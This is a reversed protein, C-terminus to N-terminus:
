YVRSVFRRTRRQYAAYGPYRDALWAEERRSKLDFYIALVVTVAIAPLSRTLVSWGLGGLILGAYIPHRITAYIGSEVLVAEDHPRPMPTLSRGLDRFGAIVLWGAAAMVLGGAAVAVWDLLSRPAIRAVGPLSVAFLLGLLLLQGLVWGEGRPGLDPLRQRGARPAM